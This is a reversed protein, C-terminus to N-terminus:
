RTRRRALADRLAATDVQFELRALGPAWVVPSPTVPVEERWGGGHLVLVAQVFCTDPLLLEARGREDIWQEQTEQLPALRWGRGGFTRAGSRSPGVDLNTVRLYPSVTDPLPRLGRVRATVRSMGSLTLTRDGVPGSWARAQHGSYHVECVIQAGAVPFTVQQADFPVADWGGDTRALLLVGHPDVLTPDDSPALTLTMPRLQQRLDIDLAPDTCLGGPVVQLGHRELRIGCAGPSELRLGYTGAALSRWQARGADGSRVLDSADLVTGNADLLSARLRSVCDRVGADIRVTLVLGGARRLVVDGGADPLDRSVPVRDPATFRLRRLSTGCVTITGDADRHHALNWTHDDTHGEIVLGVPPSGEDTTVRGRWAAPEDLAVVTGVDVIATSALVPGLTATRQRPHPGPEQLSLTGTLPQPANGLWCPLAFRGEADTQAIGRGANAPGEPSERQLWYDFTQLPLPRHDADRLVGHCIPDGREGLDVSVVEGHRVPGRCFARPGPWPTLFRLDLGLGVFPLTARGDADLTVSRHDTIDLGPTDGHSVYVTRMGTLPHGRGDRAQIRVSGTPPLRITITQDTLPECLITTHTGELGPADVVIPQRQWRGFTALAVAPETFVLQGQADTVGIPIWPHSLGLEHVTDLLSIPANAAPQGLCDLVEIGIRPKQSLRLCYGGEPEIEPVAAHGTLADAVAAIEARHTPCPLLVMGATDTRLHQGLLRTQEFPNAACLPLRMAEPHLWWHSPTGTPLYYVDADALPTSDSDRVVRLWRHGAPAPDFLPVAHRIPGADQDPPAPRDPPLDASATPSPEPPTPPPAPAPPPPAFWLSALLLAGAVALLPLRSRRM